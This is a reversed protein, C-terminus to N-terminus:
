SRNGLLAQVTEDTAQEWPLATFGFAQAFLSSDLESNAPRQAPTPYDRTTIATVAPRRGTFPQQAEIIRSAFGHWTTVGQGAVHYTGFAAQGEDIRRAVQLIARALDATSTPCGRQDAVVRLEDREGALRLMTKLFNAGYVGYVWATRLILHRDWHDRVAAEGAAKSRGYVGIPAIPDSERYPGTKSGDFVYDTSVHVLPIGAVACARALVAPGTANTRFAEESESEARDVKTYAGANVVLRPASSRIAQTVAAPDALDAEHRSLGTLPVGRAGALATLEQGLQGGAGFLLIM